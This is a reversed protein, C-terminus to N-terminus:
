RGIIFIIPRQEQEKEEEEKRKTREVDDKSWNAIKLIPVDIGGNSCGM